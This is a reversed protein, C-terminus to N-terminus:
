EVRLAEIPSVSAARRAPVYSALLASATLVAAIGGITLPDWARVGFLLGRIFAAGAVSVLAGIVIGAAILRGAEGLVLAYVSGRQAGLAMRVGIERTRRSVSYAVVGYIGLVGLLWAVAAFAGVVIASVRRQYAAQSDNIVENMTRGGFTAIDPDIEHIASTLAPVLSQEAGSARVFVAFGNTPDQDFAVYMTPETPADLAGEKLDDIVGVIEMPPQSSTPAYDIHKGVPDEAGLYRRALARNVIVVPAKSPDDQETFYRGRLLRAQLTTFYAPSVERYLVENHEGHYPQGVVRIWMTNGGRVPPTSSIGVSVVGPLADVRRVIERALAVIRANTSYRADPPDLGIMVVHEARMGIDVHLLEYLSRGLLAAGVLLVMAIVLEAIVLKSGVRRWERGASGRAGESLDDRTSSLRLRLAPTMALLAVTMAGLAASFLLVRANLGLDALYPLRAMTDPPILRTLMAAVWLSGLIGVISATVVLAVAEAVFQRAIRSASAGLARRVAIERRRAESRVLLLSAVNVSGILLLLAAGGLLVMLLPRVNGVVVDALPVVTAGQGRNSDPYQRELNRAIAIVNAAAREVSVGDRLRAVGYMNHCSRRAECPGTPQLTTWFEPSGVPAFHFASPLVGIITAPDGNLVVTRGLVSRDGGYRKQWAAHSLMVARSANPLDEAPVFDRGLIPTVGLTQFFDASVRAGAARQAGEPTTLTFGGGRYASLSSFVTNLRKWDLYDAYSLNSRPFMTVQEFVGVLRSPNEYPLPRILAADVFAFMAVTACLGLTLTLIATTAFVPNKRLQRIAFRFDQLLGDVLMPTSSRTPMPDSSQVPLGVNENRHAAAEKPDRFESAQRSRPTLPERARAPPLGEPV